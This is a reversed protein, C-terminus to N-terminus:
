QCTKEYIAEVIVILSDSIDDLSQRYDDLVWRMAINVGAGFLGLIVFNEQEKPLNTKLNYLTMATNFNMVFDQEAERKIEALKGSREVAEFLIIRALRPDDRLIQYFARIGKRVIDDPKEYEEELVKSIYRKIRENAELYTKVLLEERNTFSEYFYRETLGAETCVTKISAAAFGSTGIVEIGAEILKEFREAHRELKSKGAYNRVAREKSNTNMFVYQCIVNDFAFIVISTTM